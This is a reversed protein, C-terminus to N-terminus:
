SHHLRTALSSFTEGAALSQAFAKDRAELEEARELVENLQAARVRVIGTEDAVVWDDPDVTVGCISVPVNVGEVRVRMKGSRPTVHRSAVWLGSAILEALDRCGGDVVVGRAGRALAKQAALGGFTSVPAGGMEVVVIMGPEIVDLFRGVAFDALPYANLGGVTLKVTLAPGAIRGGGARQTLGDVICDGQGM